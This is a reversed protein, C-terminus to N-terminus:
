PQVSMIHSTGFVRGKPKNINPHTQVQVLQAVPGDTMLKPITCIYGLIVTPIEYLPYYCHKM